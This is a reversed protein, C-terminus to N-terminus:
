SSAHYFRPGSTCLPPRLYQLDITRAGYLGGGVWSAGTSGTVSPVLGALTFLRPEGEHEEPHHIQKQWRWKPAIHHKEWAADLIIPPAGRDCVHM